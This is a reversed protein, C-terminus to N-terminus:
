LKAASAIFLELQSQIKLGADPVLDALLLSQFQVRLRDFAPFATMGGLLVALAPVVSLATFYCLSAATNAINDTGMRRLFFGASGLPRRLRLRWSRAKVQPPRDVGASSQTKAM